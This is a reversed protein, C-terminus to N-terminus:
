HKVNGTNEPAFPFVSSTLPPYTLTSPWTSPPACSSEENSGREESSYMSNDMIQYQLCVVPVLRCAKHQQFTLFPVPLVCLLRPDNHVVPSYLGWSMAQAALLWSGDSTPHCKSVSLQFLWIDPAPQVTGPTQILIIKGTNESSSYRSSCWHIRMRQWLYVALFLKVLFVVHDTRWHDWWAKLQRSMLCFCLSRLSLRHPLSRVFPSFLPLSTCLLCSQHSCVGWLM